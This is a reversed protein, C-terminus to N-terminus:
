KLGTLFELLDAVQQATMDRLLLDPMLSKQQPVLREVEAASFRIEKGEASKLVIEKDSRQVLLGSVVEGGTTEALYSVFQPDITKSPELLSELLKPKDLKKGIQTLDPGLAQGQEGIRHCNKCQIGATERFLTRGRDADGVLALIADSRIASGLRKIRQEEPIFREFLDRIAPDKDAYGRNIFQQAEDPEFQEVFEALWLARSTSVFLNSVAEDPFARGHERRLAQIARQDKAVRATSKEAVAASEPKLSGIWSRVLKTGKVDVVQSGFQPMRGPGLKSMRYYLVSRYPDGPAVIEGEFTGFTGQTPRTGVLSTKALPHKYQVDFFSSGGGGRTHCHGCNVHLYARARAELPASEDHPNPIRDIKKPLPEAFLGVHDLTALQDVLTGGYDHQRDLQAPKFGLISGVRTTHCLL